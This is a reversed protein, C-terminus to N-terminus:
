DYCPTLHPYDALFKEETLVDNKEQPTWLVHIGRIDGEPIFFLKRAVEELDAPRTIEPFELAGDAAVLITVVIFENRSGIKKKYCDKKRRIGEMNYLTEGDFKSREKISIIDFHDEWSDEEYMLDVSVSSSVCCDRHRSLSCITETLIYKYRRQDSSDVSEAIFNLEQQFPEAYGLLAVQLKVITMRPHTFDHYCLWVTVGLLVLVIAAGVLWCFCSGEDDAASPPAPPTDVVSVHSTSYHYSRHYSKSHSRSSPSSSSRTSKSNSRSSSSVRGGMAGGSAALAPQTLVAAALLLALLLPLKRQRRTAAM